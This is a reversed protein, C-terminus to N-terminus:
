HLADLVFAECIETGGVHKVNVAICSSALFRALAGRVLTCATHICTHSITLAGRGVVTCHRARAAVLIAQQATHLLRGRRQGLGHCLADCGLANRRLSKETSGVQAAVARGALVRALAGLGLAEALAHSAKQIGM